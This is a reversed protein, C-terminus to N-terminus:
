GDAGGARALADRAHERDDFHIKETGLIQYDEHGKGAILLTDGAAAADVAIGIARARDPEVAFGRRARVLDRPDIRELGAAEVGPVIMGIISAPDETRPNDSTVLALDAALAVARGMLPRKARDRDGGCGFVCILRGATLSRLSALATALADPTHAYDVLVTFGRGGPVRELRGPVAALRSLGVAVSEPDLGLQLCIGLSVLLNSLNHVGLLPSELDVEGGPTAVRASIGDIGVRPPGLPRLNAGSAPDCSVTLAPHRMRELITSSYPDDVNIVGRAGPTHELATTFLILKAAAYDDMDAHFDLHDQTLNTFAVVDFQCGRLRGLALGHSSAEMVLHTAGADLMERAMSQIVPAEPTTHPAQWRRDGFRYDITGMVAPLSGVSRLAAELMFTITTKGNTGTVGVLALEGTPDGYCAAAAPGLAARTDAVVIRPVPVDVDEPVLLATAGRGLADGVFSMGDSRRGRLAAFLTGSRVERSDHTLDVVETDPPGVVRAGPLRGAIEAVTPM